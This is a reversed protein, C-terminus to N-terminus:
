KLADKLTTAVYDIDSETLGTFMPLSLIQGAFKEANKPRSSVECLGQAAPQLHIPTPYHISTGVGAARMKEQVRVRDPVRIVFQHYAHLRSGRDGPLLLDAGDLAARYWTAIKRRADVEADLRRLKESLVIAQLTDLRESGGVEAHLNMEDQGHTRLRRIRREVDADSGTVFGADGWAGLNKTPYASFAGAHGFSGVSRGDISAGHAQACDELIWWGHADAMEMLPAMDVPLGFLHVPIVAHIALDTLMTATILYDDDHDVIVPTYGAAVVAELSAFYTNAPVAVKAGSPLPAARLALTLASTGSSTGVCWKCGFRAAAAREFEQVQPGLTFAGSTVLQELQPRIAEWVERNDLRTTPINRVM